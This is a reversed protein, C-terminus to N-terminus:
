LVCLADFGAYHSSNFLGYLAGLGANFPKFYLEFCCSPLIRVANLQKMISNLASWETFM